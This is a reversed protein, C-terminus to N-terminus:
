FASLPLVDVEQRIHIIGTAWMFPYICIPDHYPNSRVPLADGTVNVLLSNGEIVPIVRRLDKWSLFM